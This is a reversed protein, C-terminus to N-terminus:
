KSKMASHLKAFESFRKSFTSISEGNQRQLAFMYRVYGKKEDVVIKHGQSIVTLEQFDDSALSMKGFENTVSSKGVMDGVKTHTRFRFSNSQSLKTEADKQEITISDWLGLKWLRKNTIEQAEAQPIDFFKLMSPSALEIKSTM